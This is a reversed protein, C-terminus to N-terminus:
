IKDWRDDFENYWDKKLVGESSLMVFIGELNDNNKLEEPMENM